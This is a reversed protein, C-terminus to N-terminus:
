LHIALIKPLEIWKYLTGLREYTYGDNCYGLKGKNQTWGCLKMADKNVMVQLTDINQFVPPTGSIIQPAPGLKSPLPGTHIIKCISFKADENQELIKVHEQIFEPFLLNDDDLHVVYKVDETYVDLIHQRVSAGYTNTNFDMESYFINHWNNSSLYEKFSEKNPNPGDHCIFHKIQNIGYTQWQVSRICRDLFELPRNFTPTIVAVLPQIM